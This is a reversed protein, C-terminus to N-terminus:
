YVEAIALEIDCLDDFLLLDLQEEKNQRRVQNILQKLLELPHNEQGVLDTTFNTGMLVEQEYLPICWVELFAALKVKQPVYEAWENIANKQATSKSDWFLYVPLETATSPCMACGEEGQHLYWVVGNKVVKELFSQHQEAAQEKQNM